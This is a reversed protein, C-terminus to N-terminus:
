NPNFRWKLRNKIKRNKSQLPSTRFSKSRSHWCLTLLIKWVLFWDNLHHDAKKARNFDTLNMLSFGYFKEWHKRHTRAQWQKLLTPKGFLPPTVNITFAVALALVLLGIWLNNNMLGVLPNFLGTIWSFLNIVILIGLLWWVWSTFFKWVVWLSLISLLILLLLM